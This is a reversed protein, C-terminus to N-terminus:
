GLEFSTLGFVCDWDITPANGRVMRATEFAPELLASQALQVANSNTGPVDISVTSGPETTEILANFLAAAADVNKCFLPGIKYGERCQRITGFGSFEGRDVSVLSIRRESKQPLCWSEIFGNRSLGFCIKDHARVAMMDQPKIPRVLIGDQLKRAPRPVGAYHINQGVYSFGSKGYNSQQEVVGDLGISRGELHTMGANWTAIGVGTGRHKPHVIYFGLFGFNNGYRVVSISSVPNGDIWGLLFGHPDVANFPAADDLGPNWGEEAAWQIAIEFQERSAVSITLEGSM